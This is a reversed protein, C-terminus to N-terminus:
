YMWVYTYIARRNYQMMLMNQVYTFSRLRSACCVGQDDGHMRNNYANNNM